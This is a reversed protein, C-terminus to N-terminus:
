KTNNKVSSSWEQYKKYWASQERKQRLKEIMGYKLKREPYLILVSKNGARDEPVREDTDTVPKAGPNDSTDIDGLGETTLVMEVVRSVAAEEQESLASSTRRSSPIREQIKSMIDKALAAHERGGMLIKQFEKFKGQQALTRATTGSVAAASMEGQRPLSNVQITVTERDDSYNKWGTALKQFAALRDEGVLLTIDEYKKAFVWDLAELPTRVSIPGIHIAPLVSRILQVKETHTLPNKRDQTQSVFVFVDPRRPDNLATRFLQQHGITPPNFRGFILIAPKAM